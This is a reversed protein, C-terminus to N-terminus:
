ARASDLRCAHRQRRKRGTRADARSTRVPRAPPNIDPGGWCGSLRIWLFLYGMEYALAPEFGAGSVSFRSFCTAMVHSKAVKGTRKLASEIDAVPKSGTTATSMFKPQHRHPKGRGGCTPWKHEQFPGLSCAWTRIPRTSACGRNESWRPFAGSPVAVTRVPRASQALSSTGLLACGCAVCWHRDAAPPRGAVAHVGSCRVFSFHAAGSQLRRM